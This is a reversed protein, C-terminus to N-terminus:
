VDDGDRLRNMASFVWRLHWVPISLDVLDEWTTTLQRERLEAQIGADCDGKCATYVDVITRDDGSAPRPRVIAVIGMGSSIDELLDKGCV